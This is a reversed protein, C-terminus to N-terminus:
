HCGGCGGACGHDEDDGCGSDGCGCGCSSKPQLEEATAPRVLRVYGNYRITQGALPHNFDITVKNDTVEVVEGPVRNGEATMMEIVNRVKIRESDFQGDVMFLDKEFTVIYEDIQEGFADKPAFKLDFKEGEKLGELAQMFAPIMNQDLGFVFSDPMQETAKMMLEQNEGDVEYLDYILEVFQGAKISNM